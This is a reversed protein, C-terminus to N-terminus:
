KKPLDDLLDKAEDGPYAGAAIIKELKQRAEYINDFAVYNLALYWNSVEFAMGMSSQIRQLTEFSDYDKGAMLQSVGQYLQIYGAQDLSRASNPFLEIADEYRGANYEEMAQLIVDDKGPEAIATLKDPYPKLYTKLLKTIAKPRKNKIETTEGDSAAGENKCSSTTFLIGLAVVFILSFGYRLNMLINM